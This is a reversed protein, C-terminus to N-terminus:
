VEVYVLWGDVPVASSLELNLLVGSATEFLGVPCFSAEFGSNATLAMQGTLASGAAGSEFRVNVAATAILTVQLVRIKKGSVLAVLTNDGAAGVDIAAYKPTLSTTGDMLQNTQIAAGVNDTTAVRAPQSAVDVDGIDVGDNAELKTLSGTKTVVKNANATVQDIGFKGALATGAALKVQGTSNSAISVRQVGTGSVGNGMTVNVGNMQTINYGAGSVANDLLEIATKIASLNVDDTSISVRQTESGANGAGIDLGDSIEQTSTKLNGAATSQVSIFDGTGAAQAIIVAKTLEASGDPHVDDSLRHVTTIGTNVHLITQVRFHTQGTGGNTYVVRFYRGTTPLEFRRAGNAAIYTFPFVDDWNTNDTSFQFTMGDVASDHSADLMITVMAYNSVDEGTGTYTSASTLTSTTSNDTSVVNNNDITVNGITNSGTPLSTDFEEISVKLNGGATAQVPDFDGAGAAQAVIVSKTLVGVDDAAASEDLAHATGPLNQVHLITQLRFATQLTAGNTYVIRFFSAHAPFIFARETGAMITATHKEDWNTGDTSFEMSLGDTASAHSAFVQVSVSAFTSIDESTGTFVAAGALVDSSSNDTSVLNNNDIQVAFTGPNIVNLLGTSDNAVTVRLATAETGGGTINGNSEEISVKLSGNM